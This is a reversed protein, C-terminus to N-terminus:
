GNSHIFVHIGVLGKMTFDSQCLLVVLLQCAAHQWNLDLGLKPFFIFIFSIEEVQICEKGVRM